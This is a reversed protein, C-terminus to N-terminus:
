FKCNLEVLWILEIEREERERERERERKKKKKRKGVRTVEGSDQENSKKVRDDLKRLLYIKDLFVGTRDSVQLNLSLFLSFTISEGVDRPPPSEVVRIGARDEIISDNLPHPNVPIRISLSFNLFCSRIGCYRRNAIRSEMRSCSGPAPSLRNGPALEIEPEGKAWSVSSPGGSDGITTNMLGRLPPRWPRKSLSLSWINILSSCTWLGEM